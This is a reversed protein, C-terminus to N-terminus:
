FRVETPILTEALHHMTHFLFVAPMLPGLVIQIFVTSTEQNHNEQSALLLNELSFERQEM